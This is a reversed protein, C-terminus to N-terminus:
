HIDNVFNLAMFDNETTNKGFMSLYTSMSMGRSRCFIFFVCYHGCTLSFYGQVRKTSYNWSKTYANLYDVFEQKPKYGFSCFYDGLGEKNIYLAVWHEGVSGLSDTNAILCSPRPPNEPMMDVPYVGLFCKAKCLKSIQLTNM